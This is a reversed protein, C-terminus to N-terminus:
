DAAEVAAGLRALVAEDHWDAEPQLGVLADGVEGCPVSVAPHGPLSFPVTNATTALVDATDTVEGYEPPSTTTQTVLADTDALFECVSQVFGRRANQAAVYNARSLSEYVVLSSQVDEGLESRDLSAVAARWPEAHGTGTGRV